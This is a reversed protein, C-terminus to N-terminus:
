WRPLVAFSSAEGSTSLRFRGWPTVPREVYGVGPGAGSYVVFPGGSGDSRALDHWVPGGSTQAFQLFVSSGSISAVFVSFGRDAHELTFPSSTSAGSAVEVFTRM